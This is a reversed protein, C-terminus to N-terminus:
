VAALIRDVAYPNAEREDLAQAQSELVLDNVDVREGIGVSYPERGRPAESEQASGARRSGSRWYREFPGVRAACPPRISRGSTPSLACCLRMAAACPCPTATSTCTAHTTSCARAGTSS